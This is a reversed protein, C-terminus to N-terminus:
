FLKCVADYFKSLTSATTTYPARKFSNIFGWVRQPASQAGVLGQRNPVLNMARLEEDQAAQKKDSVLYLNCDKESRSVLSLCTFSHRKDDNENEM